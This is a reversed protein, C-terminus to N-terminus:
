DAVDDSTKGSPDLATPDSEPEVPTAGPDAAFRGNSIGISVTDTMGVYTHYHSMKVVKGREEASDVYYTTYTINAGKSRYDEFFAKALDGETQDFYAKLYPRGVSYVVRVVPETALAVTEGPAVSQSVLGGYPVGETFREQVQVTLGPVTAATEPTLTAFDPIVAGKGFSLEMTLKTEKAIKEEPPISQSVVADEEVTESAVEKFTISMLNSKAWKEVEKKSKGKFDPMAIDKKFVEKGKSLYIILQDGRKYTDRTVDTNKFEERLFKGAPVKSDFEEILTVNEGKVSQKWDALETKSLRSFDPLAILEEPDPGLSTVLHLTQQKKIKKKPAPSQKIVGNVDDTLSYVQESTVKVQQERAWTRAESVPKGTFNPLATYAIAYYAFGAVVVGGVGILGLLLQKRRRKGQYTPDTELVEGQAKVGRRSGEGPGPSDARKSAGNDPTEHSRLTEPSENDLSETALEDESMQKETPKGAVNKEAYSKTTFKKLFDSM